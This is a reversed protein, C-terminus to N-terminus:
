SAEKTRLSEEKLLKSIARNIEELSLPKQLILPLDTLDSAKESYNLEETEEEYQKMVTESPVATMIIAPIRIGVASRIRLISQLGTLRGPGLNFDTLILDIPKSVVIEAALQAEFHEAVWVEAGWAELLAVLSSRILADDEILLIRKDKLSVIERQVKERKSPAIEIVHAELPIALKFISGQGLRSRLSLKYGLLDTIKRVISLGLGYGEKAKYGSSRRFYEKIINKREENAIRAGTDAVRIVLSNKSTVKAKLYISGNSTYRIANGLLNRIIRSLLQYDASILVSDSSVELTDHKAEAVPTFEAALEMLLEEVNFTTPNIKISGADLKSLILIQDVLNSVSSCAKSLNDILPKASSPVQSALLSIFIGMAQLPQRLDHNAAAFFKTKSIIAMEAAEKSFM